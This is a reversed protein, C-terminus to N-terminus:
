AERLLHPRLVELRENKAITVDTRLRAAKGGSALLHSQVRGFTHPPGRSAAEGGPRSRETNGLPIGQETRANAGAPSPM